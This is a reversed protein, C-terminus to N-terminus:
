GQLCFLGRIPWKLGHPWIVFSGSSPFRTCSILLLLLCFCCPCCVHHGDFMTPHIKEHMKRVGCLWKIVNALPNCQPTVGCGSITDCHILFVTLYEWLTAITPVSLCFSPCVLLTMGYVGMANCTLWICLVRVFSEETFNNCFINKSCHGM